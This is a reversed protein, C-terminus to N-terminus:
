MVVWSRIGQTVKVIHLRQDTPDPGDRQSVILTDGPSVNSLNVAWRLASQLHPWTHSALWVYGFGEGARVHRYVTYPTM